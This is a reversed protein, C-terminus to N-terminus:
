KLHKALRPFRVALYDKLYKRGDEESEFTNLAYSFLEHDEKDLREIEQICFKLGEDKVDDIKFLKDPAPFLEMLEEWRKDGDVIKDCLKQRIAEGKMNIWREYLIQNEETHLHNEKIKSTLEKRQGPIELLRKISEQLTM